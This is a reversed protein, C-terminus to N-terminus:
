STAMPGEVRAPLRRWIATTPDSGELCYTALDLGFAEAQNQMHSLVERYAAEVGCAFSERGSEVADIAAEAGVERLHYVLDRLYGEAASSDHAMKM